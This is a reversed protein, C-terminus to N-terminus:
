TAQKVLSQGEFHPAEFVIDYTQGEGPKRGPNVLPPFQGYIASAQGDAYTPNNYPDLVQIEYRSVLLVGSNGRAQSTGRVDPLESWDVHLQCDGFKERKLLDGTGPVVEFYGNEVKWQADVLKASDAGKGHQVWKSLDKGDFLVVADSPAAGPEKGPTLVHPHPRDPDHVHWKQGPLIPTDTFGLDAGKKQQASLAIALCVATAFCLATACLTFSKHRMTVKVPYRRARGSAFRLTQARDAGGAGGKRRGAGQGGQLDTAATGRAFGRAGPQPGCGLGQARGGAVVACLDGPHPNEGRRQPVPGGVGRRGEAGEAHRQDARPHRRLREREGEARTRGTGQRALHGGVPGTPCAAQDFRRTGNQSSALVHPGRPEGAANTT